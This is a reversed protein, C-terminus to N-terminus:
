LCQKFSVKKKYKWKIITLDMHFKLYRVNLPYLNWINPKRIQNIMTSDFM